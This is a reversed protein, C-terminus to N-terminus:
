SGAGETELKVVRQGEDLVSVGATVVWEGGDLGRRIRVGFESLAGPEVERRSLTSTADDIVWVYSKSADARLM